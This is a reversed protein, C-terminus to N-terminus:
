EALTAAVSRQNPKGDGHEFWVLRWAVVRRLSNRVPSIELRVELRQGHRDALWVDMAEGTETHRFRGFAERVAQQSDPHHLELVPKGVIERPERGLRALLHETCALIQWREAEVSALMVPIEAYLERYRQEMRKRESIDVLAGLVYLSGGVEIPNLGIEVYFESGDKRRGFLDRGGGLQRPEPRELYSTRLALHIERQRPPLLVEIRQGVLEGRSYGFLREMEANVLVIDGSRDVMVMGTPAAEVLAQFREEARKRETIDTMGMYVGDVHGHRSDSVYNVLVCIREGRSTVFTTEFTQPQGALARQLYPWAHQYADPGIVEGLHRGIIESKRKGFCEAYRRNTLRYQLNCDVYAILSPVNDLVLELQREALDLTAIDTFTLVVGNMEGAAARYPTVRKLYRKGDRSSVEREIPKGQAMVGFIDDMLRPSDLNYAIHAIPRGIDQDLVNFAASIAPTFKRINLDRDIFITGIETSRLLNDMDATLQTLEEIKRQHEANVTYLEENVSQLEENTSQLEENASVLEENTSQLEENSAELKEVATQLSEKTFDLERELEQIRNSTENQAAFSEAVEEVSSPRAPAEDLIILFLKQNQRVFPEVVIRLSSQASLSQARVDTYRVPANERT